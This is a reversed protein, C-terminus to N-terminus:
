NWEEMNIEPIIEEFVKDDFVKTKMLEEWTPGCFVNTSSDVSVTAMEGGPSCYMVISHGHYDGCIDTNCASVYDFLQEKNPYIM